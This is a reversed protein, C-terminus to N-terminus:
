RVKFWAQKHENAGYVNARKLADNLPNITPNAPLAGVHKVHLARLHQELVGGALVAAPDKLREDDSLYEAMALFDSFTDSRVREQLTQLRGAEYDARLAQVVGARSRIREGGYGTWAPAKVIADKGDEPPALRSVVGDFLAVM